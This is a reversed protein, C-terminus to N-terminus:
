PTKQASRVRVPPEQESGQMTLIQRLQSLIEENTDGRIGRRIMVSEYLIEKGREDLNWIAAVKEAIRLDRATQSMNVLSHVVNSLQVPQNYVEAIIQESDNISTQLASEVPVVLVEIVERWRKANDEHLRAVEARLRSAETKIHQNVPSQDARLNTGRRATILVSPKKKSIISAKLGRATIDPM